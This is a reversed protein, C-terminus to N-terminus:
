SGGVELAALLVLVLTTVAFVGHVVVVALPIRQEALTLVAGAAPADAEGSMAQRAPLDGTTAGASRRDKAWRLVLVDGFTAVVLLAIFALWALVESDNIVYIVWVVLGATALLFHGFVVPPPFHSATAGGAGSTRAGRLWTGLMFLGFGATIIWTILAAIAM